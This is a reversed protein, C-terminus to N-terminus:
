GYQSMRIVFKKVKGSTDDTSCNDVFLFKFNYRARLPNVVRSIETYFNEVNESENYVPCLITITPLVLTEKFSM